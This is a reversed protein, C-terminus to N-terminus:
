LHKTNFRVIANYVQEGYKAHDPGVKTLKWEQEYAHHASEFAQESWAGAGAVLGKLELFEALHVEVCHVKPTVSIQLLRYSESFQQIINRYDMDLTQGFCATVVANFRVLTRCFPVASLLQLEKSEQHMKGALKLLKRAQNGELTGPQYACWQINNVKMFQELWQKKEDGLVKQMETLIKGTVGTMCHLEPFNLLELVTCEDPGSLLAPHVCNSFNKQNKLQGGAEMFRKYHAALSGLTYSPCPCNFPAFCECFPCSHRSAASSKGCLMLMVKMDVALGYSPGLSKIDVLNLLRRLNEWSEAVHPVAAVIQLKKVSSLLYGRSGAVGDEHRARRSPPEQQGIADRVVLCLKLVGQGDDLGLQIINNDPDINREEMLLTVLAPIDAVVAPREVESEVGEKTKQVFKTNHLTFLDKLDRNRNSLADQLYPQVAKQGLVTALCRNLVKLKTDSVNLQQQIGFMVEHSFQGNDGSGGRGSAKGLQVPLLKSGSLLSVTGGRSSVSQQIAINKLSKATVKSCTTDSNARVLSVLNEQRNLKSCVHPKGPGYEAYCNSCLTLPLAPAPKEKAPFTARTHAAHWEPYSLTLRVIDCIGCGCVEGPVPAFANGASRSSRPFLLDFDLLPPFKRDSQNPDQFTM